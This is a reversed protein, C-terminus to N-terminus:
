LSTRYMAVQLSLDNLDEIVDKAAGNLDLSRRSSGTSRRQQEDDDKIHLGRLASLDQSSAGSEEDREIIHSLDKKTEIASIDQGFPVMGQNNNITSARQWTELDGEMNSINTAFSAFTGCDNSRVSKPNYTFRSSDQSTISRTELPDKGFMTSEEEVEDKSSTSTSKTKKSGNSSSKSVEPVKYPEDDPEALCCIFCLCVTMITIFGAGAAIAAIAWVKLGDDEPPEQIVTNVVSDGDVIVIAYSIEALFPDVSEALIDLFLDNYKRFSDKLVDIVDDTTVNADAKFYSTGAIDVAVVFGGSDDEEIGRSNISLSLREFKNSYVNKFVQELFQHCAFLILSADTDTSIAVGRLFYDRYTFVSDAM